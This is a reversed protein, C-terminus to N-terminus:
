SAPKRVGPIASSRAEHRERAARVAVDRAKDAERREGNFIEQSALIPAYAAEAQERTDFTAIFGSSRNTVPADEFAVGLRLLRGWWRGTMGGWRSAKQTTVAVLQCSGYDLIIGYFLVKTKKSM